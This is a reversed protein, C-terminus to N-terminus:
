RGRSKGGTKSPYLKYEYYKEHEKASYIDPIEGLLLIDLQKSVEMGDKVTNDLMAVLIVIGSCLLFGIIAGLICNKAMNPSSPNQAVVPSDIKEIKVKGVTPVRDKAMQEFARCVDYSLQAKSTTATVCLVNSNGVQIIEINSSGIKENEYTADMEKLNNNMEAYADGADLAEICTELLDKAYLITNRQNAASSEGNENINSVVCLKIASTYKPSIYFKTVVAAAITVLVTATLIIIIKSKIIEFISRLTIEEKM